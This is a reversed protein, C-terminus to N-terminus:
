TGTCGLSSPQKTKQTCAYFRDRSGLHAKITTYIKSILEFNSEHLGYRFSGLKKRACEAWREASREHGLALNKAVFPTISRGGLFYLVAMFNKVDENNHSYSIAEDTREDLKTTSKLIQAMIGKAVTAKGTEAALELNTRRRQAHNALNFL